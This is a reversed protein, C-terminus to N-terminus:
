LQCIEDCRPYCNETSERHMHLSIYSGAAFGAKWSWTVCNIAGGACEPHDRDVFALADVMQVRFGQGELQERALDDEPIGYRPVILDKPGLQLFNAYVGFANDKPRAPARHSADILEIVDLGIRRAETMLARSHRTTAGVSCNKPLTGIVVTNDAVLRISGDLHGTLEGELEPLFQVRKVCLADRIAASIENGTWDPNDVFVRKSILAIERNGIVSGGDLILPVVQVCDRLWLPYAAGSPTITTWAAPEDVLYSPAYLFQVFRDDTQIPMFDRCWIDRCGELVTLKRLASLDAALTGVGLLVDAIAYADKEYDPVM